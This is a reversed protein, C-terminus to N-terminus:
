IDNSNSVKTHIVNGDSDYEYWCEFGNSTKSHITNGNSDYEHWCEFGNSTKSHIMNGNSDYWQENGDSDKIYKAKINKM